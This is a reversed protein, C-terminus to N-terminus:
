TQTPMPRKCGALCNTGARSRLNKALPSDPRVVAIVLVQGDQREALNGIMTLALEQDLRDADDIVMLVPAATSVAAVSRAARTLPGRQGAPSADWANDAATVALSALLMSAAMAMGSAFVDAVGLALQVEGAASDLGFLDAVKSWVSPTILSDHLPGAEIAGGVLPVDDLSISITVPGDPDEAIERFADLVAQTGWGPPVELLVVRSGIGGDRV